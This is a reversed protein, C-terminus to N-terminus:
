IYLTMPGNTHLLMWRVGWWRIMQHVGCWTEDPTCSRCVPTARRTPPRSADIILPVWTRKTFTCHQDAGLLRYVADPKTTMGTHLLPLGAPRVLCEAITAQVAEDAWESSVAIPRM